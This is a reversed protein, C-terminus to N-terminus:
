LCGQDKFLRDAFHLPRKTKEYQSQTSLDSGTRHRLSCISQLDSSLLLLSRPHPFFVKSKLHENPSNQPPFLFVVLAQVRHGQRARGRHQGAPENLALNSVAVNFM